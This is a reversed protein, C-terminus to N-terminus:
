FRNLYARIDTLGVASVVEPPDIRNKTMLQVIESPVLERDVVFLEDM